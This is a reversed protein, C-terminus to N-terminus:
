SILVYEIPMENATSPKIAIDQTNDAANWPIFMWDGAYLRGIQEVIIETGAGAAANTQTVTVFDTSVTSANSIYVFNHTSGGADGFPILDVQNTSTYIKRKSTMADMGESSGAKTLNFTASVSVPVSTIDNNLSITAITTPM